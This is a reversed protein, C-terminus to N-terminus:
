TSLNLTVEKAPNFFRVEVASDIIEQEPIMFREAERNSKRIGCYYCDKSCINSFEVIGRFWVKKGVNAVKVRYAAEFLQKIEEQSTLGLLTKIENHNLNGNEEAKKILEATNMSNEQEAPERSARSLRKITQSFFNL